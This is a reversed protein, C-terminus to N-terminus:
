LNRGLLRHPLVLGECLLPYPGYDLCRWRRYFALARPNGAYAQLWLSRGRRDAIESLFREMLRDAIGTGQWVGPVYLRALEVTPSELGPIPCPVEGLALYGQWDGAVWAGNGILRELVPLAFAAGCLAHMAAADFHTGFAERFCAEGFAALAPAEAPVLRRITTAM